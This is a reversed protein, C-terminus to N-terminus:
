PISDYGDSRRRICSRTSPIVWVIVVLVVALLIAGVVVGLTPADWGSIKNTQLSLTLKTTQDDNMATRQCSPPPSQSIECITTAIWDHYGSVRMNISPTSPRGCGIGDDVIGVVVVDSTAEDGDDGHMKQIIPCGSDSECADKGGEITGTCIQTVPDVNGGDNTGSPPKAYTANCTVYDFVDVDVERLTTSLGTGITPQESTTGFGMITIADGVSPVTSDANYKFPRINSSVPRNLKVLMVDHSGTARSPDVAPDVYRPHIFRSHVTRIEVDSSDISGNSTISSVTLNNTTNAVRGGTISQPNVFVTEHDNFVWKCHAVTLVVDSHVLAGGCGWGLHPRIGTWIFGPYLGPPDVGTGGVIADVFIFASTSSSTCSINTNSVFAILGILIAIRNSLTM